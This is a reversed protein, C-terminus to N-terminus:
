NRVNVIAVEMAFPPTAHAVAVPVVAECYQLVASHGTSQMPEHPDQPVHEVVHPVVPLLSRVNVIVAATAPPPTAHEVVFPVVAESDQLVGSHGTSQAPAHPGHPVHEVVHPVPLWDRVKVTVVATALPPMIHEVAVPVAADCHHLVGRHGTSQTPAHSEHPVHESVHPKPLWDRVKAIVVATAFPPTAHEPTVADCYQM